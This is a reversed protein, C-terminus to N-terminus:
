SEKTETKHGCRPESVLNEGKEGGPPAPPTHLLRFPTQKPLSDSKILTLFLGRVAQSLSITFGAGKSQGTITTYLSAYM